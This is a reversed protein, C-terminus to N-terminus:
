KILHLNNEEHYLQRFTSKAKLFIPLWWVSVILPGPHSLSITTNGLLGYLSYDDSVSENVIVFYTMPLLIYYSKLFSLLFWGSQQYLSLLFWTPHQYLWQLLQILILLIHHQVWQPETRTSFAGLLCHYPTIHNWM